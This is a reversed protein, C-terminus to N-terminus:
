RPTLRLRRQAASGVISAVGRMQGRRAIVDSGGRNM